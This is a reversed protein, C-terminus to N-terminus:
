IENWLILIHIVAKRHIFLLSVLLALHIIEFFPLGKDWHSTVYSTVQEFFRQILSWRSLLRLLLHELNLSHRSQNGGILLKLSM